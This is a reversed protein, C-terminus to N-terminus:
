VGASRRAEVARLFNAIQRKGGPTMISEPHYQIGEILLERHRIGM